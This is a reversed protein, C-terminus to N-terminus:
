GGGLLTAKRRRDDNRERTAANTQDIRQQQLKNMEDIAKNQETTGVTFATNQRLERYHSKAHYTPDIANKPNARDRMNKFNLSLQDRFSQVSCM